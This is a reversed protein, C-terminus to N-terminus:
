TRFNKFGIVKAFVMQIRNISTLNHVTAFTLFNEDLKNQGHTTSPDSLNSEYHIYAVRLEKSKIEIEAIFMVNKQFQAWFIFHVKSLRTEMRIQFNGLISYKM